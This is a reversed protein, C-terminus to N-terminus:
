DQEFYIYARLNCLLHLIQSSCANEVDFGFKVQLAVTIKESLNGFLNDLPPQNKICSVVQRGSSTSSTNADYIPKMKYMGNPNTINEVHSIIPKISYM